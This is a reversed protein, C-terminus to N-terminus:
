SYHTLLSYLSDYEYRVVLENILLSLDADLLNYEQQDSLNLFYKAAPIVYKIDFTFTNYSKIDLAVRCCELKLLKNNLLHYAKETM